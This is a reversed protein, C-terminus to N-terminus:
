TLLRRPDFLAIPRDSAGDVALDAAIEGVVPAFKFGHGSCASVVTLTDIGPVRGIVFHGDPANTYMCIAARSPMPDAGDVLAAVLAGLPATDADHITRDIEDPEVTRGEHHIGVKVTKGDLTPFGYLFHKDHERIFVPFREPTYVMPDAVPFWAQVQREVELPGAFTPLLGPLWAGACVVGHRATITRGDLVVRVGDPAPEVAHVRHGTLLTAGSATARATMAKIALEPRLFGADPEFVAEDGPHLRHQPFRRRCAEGDLLQHDLGHTRVAAAVGTLLEGGAPGIMLAGTQTLVAAGSEEELSRWLPWAERVLPVYAPDEHYATRIIRSEGHGSGRDHGPEFQEVGVVAVGRRALRWLAASGATGVGVVVVDADV